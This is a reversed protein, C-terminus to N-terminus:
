ILRNLRHIICCWFIFEIQDSFEYLSCFLKSNLNSLIFKTCTSRFGFPNESHFSGPFGPASSNSYTIIFKSCAYISLMFM